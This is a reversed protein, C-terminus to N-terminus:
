AHLKLCHPVEAAAAPPALIPRAEHGRLETSWLLRRRLPRDCTRIRGPVGTRPHVGMFILASANAPRLHRGPDFAAAGDLDLLPELGYEARLNEARGVAPHEAPLSGLSAAGYAGRGACAIVARPPETM